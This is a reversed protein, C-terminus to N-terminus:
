GHISLGAGVGEESAPPAARPSAPRGRVQSLLMQWTERQHELVRLAEDIPVTERKMNAKILRDIIFAYLSSMQECLGPDVERRLGSQLEQVIRQARLLAECSTEFDKRELARRAKRAFRIAGDYLMLVLQESTASLVAGRLYEESVEQSMAGSQEVITTVRGRRGREEDEM